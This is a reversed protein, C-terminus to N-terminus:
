PMQLEFCSGGRRCHVLPESRPPINRGEPACARRPKSDRGMAATANWAGQALVPLVPPSAARGRAARSGSATPWACPAVREDALAKAPAAAAAASATTPAAARAPRRWCRPTEASRRPAKQLPLLLKMPVGVAVAKPTTCVPGSARSPTAPMPIFAWTQHIWFLPKSPRGPFTKSLLRRSDLRRPSSINLCSTSVKSSVCLLRM